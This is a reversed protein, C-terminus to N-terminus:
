LQDRGYFADDDKGLYWWEEIAASIRQLVDKEEDSLYVRRCFNDVYKQVASLKNDLSQFTYDM